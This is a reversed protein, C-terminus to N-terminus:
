FNRCYVNATSVICFALKPAVGKVSLLFPRTVSCNVLQQRSFVNIDFLAMVYYCTSMWWVTTVYDSNWSLLHVVFLTTSRMPQLLNRSYLCSLPQLTVLGKGKSHLTHSTHSSFPHPLNLMPLCPKAILM